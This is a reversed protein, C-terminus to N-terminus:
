PRTLTNSLYINAFPGRVDTETPYADFREPPTSDQVLYFCGAKSLRGSRDVGRLCYITKAFIPTIPINPRGFPYCESTDLKFDAPFAGNCEAPPNMSDPYLCTNIQDM